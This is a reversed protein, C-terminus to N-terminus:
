LALDEEAIAARPNRSRERYYDERRKYQELLTRLLAVSRDDFDVRLDIEPHELQGVM